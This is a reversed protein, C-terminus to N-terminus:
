KRLDNFEEEFLEAINDDYIILVNEDNGKNGNGTPNYSGTIVIEEDIIFVKHHMNNKNGDKVVDVDQYDLLEFVSYKSVQRAEMVGSISINDLKKLLLINAISDDTFSFTMFHISKKAKKLTEKVHFACNDEPCFYNEVKIGDIEIVPNLVNAGKKFEGQWMENFEGEYNQALVSSEILLLNNNNKNAGNNTPNMSGTSIKHGDIICFKNHMLGSRDTKVFSHNFEYLYGNDTIIKVDIEKQKELLKDRIKDLDVEFFACHVSEQASDIFNLLASECEEQPCFYLEVNGSDSVYSEVSNDINDVAFGGTLSDSDFNNFFAFGFALVLFLVSMVKKM